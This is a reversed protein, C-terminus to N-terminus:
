DHGETRLLDEWNAGPEWHDRGHTPTMLYVHQANTRSDIGEIAIEGLDNIFIGGGVLLTVYGFLKDKTDILKQL